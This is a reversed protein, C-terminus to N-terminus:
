ICRRTYSKYFVYKFTESSIYFSPAPSNIIQELMSYSSIGFKEKMEQYRRHIEKYMEIKHKNTIPLKKGRELLSVFRQANEYTTYFRPAGKSLARKIVEDQQVTAGDMSKIADFFSNRIAQTRQTKLIGTKM